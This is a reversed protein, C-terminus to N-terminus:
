GRDKCMLVISMLGRSMSHRESIARTKISSNDVVATTVPVGRGGLTAGVVRFADVVV